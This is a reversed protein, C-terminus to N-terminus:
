PLKDLVVRAQRARPHNPDAAITARLHVKAREADALPGAYLM